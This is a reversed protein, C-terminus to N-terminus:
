PDSRFNGWCTNKGEGKEGEMGWLNPLLDLSNGWEGRIGPGSAGFVPRM